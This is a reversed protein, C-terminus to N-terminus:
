ATFFYHLIEVLSNLRYVAINMDIDILGQAAQFFQGNMLRQTVFCAGGVGCDQIVGIKFNQRHGFIDAAV